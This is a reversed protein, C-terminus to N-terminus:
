PMTGLSCIHRGHCHVTQVGSQLSCLESVTRIVAGGSRKALPHAYYPANQAELLCTTSSSVNDAESFNRPAMCLRLSKGSRRGEGEDKM